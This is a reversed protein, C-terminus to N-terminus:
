PPLPKGFRALYKAALADAAATMRYGRYLRGLRVFADTNGGDTELAQEFHRIADPKKGAAEDLAALVYHARGLKPNLKLAQTCAPRSGAAECALLWAPAKDPWARALASAREIGSPTRKVRLADLVAQYEEAFKADDAAEAAGALPSDSAVTRAAACKACGLRRYLQALNGELEISKAGRDLRRAAEAAAENAAAPNQAEAQAWGLWLAPRADLPSLAAASSCRKVTEPDKPRADLSVACVFSALQPQSLNRALIPLATALADDKRGAAQKDIAIQFLKRDTESLVAASSVASAAPAGGDPAAWLAERENPAFASAPLEQQLTRAEDLWVRVDDDAAHRLGLELLKTSAPSFDRLVDRYQPSMFYQLERDHLVGLCHAWEHLFVATEQHHVRARVVGDKEDDGVTKLRAELYDAYVHADIGRLVAHHGFLHAAGVQEFDTSFLSLASTFGLVLHAGDAPRQSRLQDVLATMVHMPPHEWREFSLVEFAVGLRPRTYDSARSLLERIREEYGRNEAAYADDVAIRVRLVKAAAVGADSAPATAAGIRAPTLAKVTDRDRTMQTLDCACTLLLAASVFRGRNKM